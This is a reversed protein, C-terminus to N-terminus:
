KIGAFIDNHNLHEDSSSHTKDKSLTKHASYLYTYQKIANKLTKLIQDCLWGILLPM